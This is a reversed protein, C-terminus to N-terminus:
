IRFIEQSYTYNIIFEYDNLQIILDCRNRKRWLGKLWLVMVLLLENDNVKKLFKKDYKEAVRGIFM